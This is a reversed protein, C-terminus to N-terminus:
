CQDTKEAMILETIWERFGGEVNRSVGVWIAMGESSPVPCHEVVARVHVERAGNQLKVKALERVWEFGAWNRWKVMATFDAKTWEPVDDWGSLGPRGAVVGLHLTRLSPLTSLACTAASWECRDFDRDYPTARKVIGVKRVFSRAVPTLDSLFACVAEVHADFDWVHSGYLVEVGEDHIQKSVALIAPHISPNNVATYTTQMTRARFRDTRILCKSRRLKPLTDSAWTKRSPAQPDIIRIHLANPLDLSSTQSTAPYQHYEASAVSTHRTTGADNGDPALLHGYIQLRIEAPLRLFSPITATM